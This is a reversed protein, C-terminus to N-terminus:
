ILRGILYYQNTEGLFPMECWTARRIQTIYFKKSSFYYEEVVKSNQQRIINYVNNLLENAGQVDLNAQLLQFGHLAEPRPVTPPALSRPSPECKQFQLASGLFSLPLFVGKSVKPKDPDQHSLSFPSIM